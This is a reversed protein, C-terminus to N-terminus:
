QSVEHVQGVVVAGICMTWGRQTPAICGCSAIAGSHVRGRLLCTGETSPGPGSRESGDPRTGVGLRFCICGFCGPAQSWGLTYRVPVQFMVRYTGAFEWEIMNTIVSKNCLLVVSEYYGRSEFEILSFHDCHECLLM